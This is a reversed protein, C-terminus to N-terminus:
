KIGTEFCSGKQTCCAHVKWCGGGHGASPRGLAMLGTETLRVLNARLDPLATAEVVNGLADTNNFITKAYRECATRRVASKFPRM